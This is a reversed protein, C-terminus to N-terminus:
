QKAEKKDKFYYVVLSLCFIFIFFFSTILISGLITLFINTTTLKLGEYGILMDYVGFSFSILFFFVWVIIGIRISKKLSSEM